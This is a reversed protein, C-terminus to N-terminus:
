ATRQALVELADETLIIAHYNILQEVNVTDATELQAWKANRAALYTKDEFSKAVVLVKVANTIGAVEAAFSKTALDKSSM